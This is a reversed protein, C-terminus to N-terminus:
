QGVIRTARAQKKAARRLQFYHMCCLGSKHSEKSCNVIACSQRFRQKFHRICLNNIYAVNNCEVCIPEPPFQKLRSAKRYHTRCLSRCYIPRSCQICNTRWQRYHYQCLTAAFVPNLCGNSTCHFTDNERYCSKCQKKRFVQSLHCNHCLSM